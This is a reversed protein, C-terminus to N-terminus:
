QSFATGQPSTVRESEVARSIRPAIAYVGSFGSAGMAIFLWLDKLKIKFRSKDTFLLTLIFFIAAGTVRLSTIQMSSFGLKSMETGFIGLLAWIVSAVIIFFTANKKM